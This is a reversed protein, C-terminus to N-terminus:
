PPGPPGSIARLAPPGRAPWAARGSRPPGHRRRRGPRLQPVPAAPRRVPADVAGIAPVAQVVGAGRVHGGLRGPRRPHVRRAVPGRRPAIRPRGRRRTLPTGLLAYLDLLRSLDLADRCYSGRGDIGMVVELNLGDPKLRSRLLHDAFVFPSTRETPVMYEGWPQAIGIVLELSADVSRATEGLRYTLGLLEEETLGLLSAWNSGATLNWRRIRTRYRRVAAEVFRCMFTAMSPLDREWLWLWAPLQSSSFDILPGAAVDLQKEEAWALMRDSEEWRYVTEEGEITHWSMPVIARNFAAAFDDGASADLRCALATELRESRHHRIRFVQSCYLRVLADACAAARALASRALNSTEAPDGSTVAHGFTLSADRIADALAPDM